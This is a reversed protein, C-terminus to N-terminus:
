NNSKPSSSQSSKSESQKASKMMIIKNLHFKPTLNSDQDDANSQNGILNSNSNLSKM